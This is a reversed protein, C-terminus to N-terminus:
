GVLKQLEEVTAREADAIERLLQAGRKRREADRIKTLLVEDSNPPPKPWPVSLAERYERTLKNVRETHRFAEEVRERDAGVFQEAAINLFSARSWRSLQYYLFPFFHWSVLTKDSINSYDRDEELDKAREVLAAPGGTYRKGAFEVTETIGLKIGYKVGDIIIKQLDSRAEREWLVFMPKEGTPKARDMTPQWWSKSIAQLFQEDTMLKPGAFTHLYFRSEDYGVVLAWEPPPIVMPMIVPRGKELFGKIRALTDEKVNYAYDYRYALAYAVIRLPNEPYVFASGMRDERSYYLRFADGCIGDLFGGYQRKRAQLADFLDDGLFDIYANLSTVYGFSAVQKQDFQVELRRM